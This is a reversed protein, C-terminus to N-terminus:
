KNCLNADNMMRRIEFLKIMKDYNPLADYSDRISKFLGQLEWLSFVNSYEHNEWLLVVANDIYRLAEDPTIEKDSDSWFCLKWLMKRAEDLESDLINRGYVNFTIEWKYEEEKNNLFSSNSYKEFTFHTIALAPPLDQLFELLGSVRNKQNELWVKYALNPLNRYKERFNYLCRQDLGGNCSASNIIANEIVSEDVLEIKSDIWGGNLWHYLNYGIVKDEYESLEKESMTSLNNGFDWTSSSSFEEFYDKMLQNIEETKEKRIAEFLYYFFENLLAINSQNSTVSLKNVLLLFSRKNPSLFSITVPVYFYEPNWELEMKDTVTVKEITNYGADDWVYSVFNSWYQILYEIQFKNSDLYREWLIWMDFNNTYPDKRINLSPLYINQLLVGYYKEQQQKFEEEKSLEDDISNNVEILSNITSLDWEIYPSLRESTLKVNNYSVLNKLEDSRSNIRSYEDLVSKGYYVAWWIVVLSVLVSVISDKRTLHFARSHRKWWSNESKKFLWTVKSLIKSQEKKQWSVGTIKNENAM